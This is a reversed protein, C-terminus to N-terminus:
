NSQARHQRGGTVTVLLGWGKALLSLVPVRCVKPIPDTLPRWNRQVAFM